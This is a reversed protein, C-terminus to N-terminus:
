LTHEFHGGEAEICARLRARWQSIAADIVVQDFEDWAQIIRQRLEGVDRVKTKYVREQMVGWIKYDVPNLDPSNPPWLAPPIFDPTENTLLEVTDRARHAPAGDQQFTYYESFERIDPLLNQMLLVDRYYAGNIKVGPEVFHIGTRGLASVGVSVMISKSFTSRTRLLRSAPINKKLTGAAAYLRDNQSNSPSAVTFLKEDTFWIFHVLNAPYRTLLQRSRALRAQKNTETLETARRKKFCKLRLDIKVIENVSTQSIGVERAIERQTLHSQPRDEQSLVLAQVQEMNANNRATRPRGSGSQRKCSGTSNIKRLLAKLGGLKWGKDPFERLLRKASYNQHQRLYQIVIRDEESFAM